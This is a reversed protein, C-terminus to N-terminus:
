ICLLFIHDPCNENQSYQHHSKQRDCWLYKMGAATYVASIKRNITHFRIFFLHCQGKIRRPPILIRASYQFNQLFMISMHGEKHGTAPHLTIGLIDFCYQCCPVVKSIVAFVMFLHTLKGILFAFLFKHLYMFLYLLQCAIVHKQETRRVAIIVIM